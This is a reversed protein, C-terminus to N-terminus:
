PNAKRYAELDKKLTAIESELAEKTVKLEEVEKNMATIDVAPHSQLEKAARKANEFDSKLSEHRTKADAIEKTMAASESQIRRSEDCGATALMIAASVTVLTLRQLVMPTKTFLM